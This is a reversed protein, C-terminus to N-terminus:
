ISMRVAVSSRLTNALMLAGHETFALPLVASFKLRELHDCKTIVEDKEARTLQFMFDPPFRDRQRKIQQNLHRTTVGFLEAIDADLMVRRGRLVLIKSEIPTTQSVLQNSM